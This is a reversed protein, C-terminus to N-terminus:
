FVSMWNDLILKPNFLAVGLVFIFLAILLMHFSLEWWAMDAVKKGGTYFSTFWFLVSLVAKFVDEM